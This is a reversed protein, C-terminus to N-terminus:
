RVSNSGPGSASSAWDIARCPSAWGIVAAAALAAWRSRFLMWASWGVLAGTGLVAGTNVIAALAMPNSSFLSGTALFTFGLVWSQLPVWLLPGPPLFYPDQEWLLALRVRDFDDAFM